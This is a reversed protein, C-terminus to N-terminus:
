EKTVTEDLNLILSAVATWAALEPAPINPDSASDGQSLLKRAAEPESAFHDKFFQLSASLKKREFDRPLRALVLRFALDLRQEPPAEHI